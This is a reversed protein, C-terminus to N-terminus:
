LVSDGSEWMQIIKKIARKRIRTISAESVGEKIIEKYQKKDIYIAKLVAQEKPLLQLYYLYVHKVRDIAQMIQLMNQRIEEQYNKRQKEYLLYIDDLGKGTGGSHSENELGPSRMQLMSILEEADEYERSLM